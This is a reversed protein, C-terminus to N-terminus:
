LIEDDLEIEESEIEAETPDSEQDFGIITREAETLQLDLEAKMDGLITKLSKTATDLSTLNRNADDFKKIVKISSQLHDLLKAAQNEGLEGSRTMTTLKVFQYISRLLEPDDHEPDFAIVVSKMGDIWLRQGKTPMLETSKCLGIFGEARRNKLSGEMEKRWKEITLASDKAEFVIRIKQGIGTAFEAVADGMKNRKVYGETAGTSECTDGLKNVVSILADVARKEYEVGGIPANDKIADEANEIQEAQQLDRVIQTIGDLQTRLGRLPSTPNEPDLLKEIGENQSKLSKDVSENLRKLMAELSTSIAKRVPADEGAISSEVDKAFDKMVKNITINLNGDDATLMKMESKITDTVSVLSTGIGKQATEVANKITEAGANSSFVSAAKAGIELLELVLAEIDEGNELKQRVLEIVQLDKIELGDITLIQKDPDFHVHQSAPQSLNNVENM